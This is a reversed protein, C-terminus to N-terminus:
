KVPVIKTSEIKCLNNEAMKATIAEGNAAGKETCFKYWTDKDVPGIADLSKKLQAMMPADDKVETPTSATSAPKAENPASVTSIPAASKLEAEYVRHGGTGIEGRWIKWQTGKLAPAPQGERWKLLALIKMRLTTAVWLTYEGGVVAPLSDEKGKKSRADGGIYKVNAKIRNDDVENGKRDQKKGFDVSTPEDLFEVTANIDGEIKLSPAYDERVGKTWSM